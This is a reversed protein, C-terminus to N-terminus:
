DKNGGGLSLGFLSRACVSVWKWSWTASSPRRKCNCVVKEKDKKKRTGSSTGSNHVYKHVRHRWAQKINCHQVPLGWPSNPWALQAVPRNQSVTASQTPPIFFPGLDDTKNRHRRRFHQMQFLSQCHEIAAETCTEEVGWCGRRKRKKKEEHLSLKKTPIVRLAACHAASWYGWRSLEKCSEKSHLAWQTESTDDM